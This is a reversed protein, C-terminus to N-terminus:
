QHIFKFYSQKFNKYEIVKNEPFSLSKIQKLKEKVKKKYIFCDWNLWPNEKKLKCNNSLFM